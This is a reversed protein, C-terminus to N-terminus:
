NEVLDWGKDSSKTLDKHAKFSWCFLNGLLSHSHHVLQLKKWWSQQHLVDKKFVSSADGGPELLKPIGQDRHLQNSQAASSSTQTVVQCLCYVQFVGKAVTCGNCLTVLGWLPIHLSFEFHSNSFAAIVIAIVIEEQEKWVWTILPGPIM